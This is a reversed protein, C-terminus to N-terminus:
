GYRVEAVVTRTVEFRKGVSQATIKLKYRGRNVVGVSDSLEGWYDGRTGQYGLTVPWSVGGVETEGDNEYLTAEVVADSVFTGEADQLGKIEIVHDNNLYLTDM